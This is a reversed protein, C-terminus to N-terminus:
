EDDNQHFTTVGIRVLSQRLKLQNQQMQMDSQREKLIQEAELRDAEARPIDIEGSRQAITTYINVVDNEVVVIGGFLAVKQVHEGRKIRLIGDGLAASIKEHGPLIGMDGDICRMVLMDAYKDFKLGRPTTIRLHLKKDSM